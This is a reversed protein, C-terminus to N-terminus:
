AIQIWCILIRDIDLWLEFDWWIERSMHVKAKTWGWGQAGLWPKDDTIMIWLPFGWPVSTMPHIPCPKRKVHSEPVMWLERMTHGLVGVLWFPALGAVPRRPPLWEKLMNWCSSHITNIKHNKHPPPDFGIIILELPIFMWKGAIKPNVLHWPKSWYGYLYINATASIISRLSYWCLGRGDTAGLRRPNWCLTSSGLSTFTAQKYVERLIFLSYTNNIDVM